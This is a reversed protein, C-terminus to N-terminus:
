LRINTEISAIVEDIPVRADPTGFELRKNLLDLEDNIFAYISSRFDM